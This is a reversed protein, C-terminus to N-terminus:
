QTGKMEEGHIRVEGKAIHELEHTLNEELTFNSREKILILHKKSSSGLKGRFVVADAGQLNLEEGYECVSQSVINPSKELLNLVRDMEENRLLFAEIGAFPFPKDTVSKWIKLVEKKSIKKGEFQLDTSPTPKM